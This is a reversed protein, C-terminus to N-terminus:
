RGSCTTAAGALPRRLRQGRLGRREADYGGARAKAVISCCRRRSSRASSRPAGLLPGGGAARDAALRAPRAHRGPQHPLGVGPGIAYAMALLSLGFAFAVGLTASRRVRRDGGDGRRRVGARVDRRGGSWSTADCGGRGLDLTAAGTKGAATPATLPARRDASVSAPTGTPSRRSRWCRPRSSGSSSARPSARAASRTAPSTSTGSRATSPRSRTPSSRSSRGTDTIRVAEGEVVIDLGKAWTNTGTTLAVKRAHELNRAKQEETGTVFHMAGDHYLGILPTVHPRGDARVTTLWYLEASALVAAAAEAWPTAEAAPDSFRSDFKTPRHGHGGLGVRGPAPASSMACCNELLRVRHSGARKATQHGHVLVSVGGARRRPARAQDLGVVVDLGHAADVQAHPGALHEPEESGVAGALRRGHLISVVSSVIVDPLAVTAPTSTAPSGSATRRASRRRAAPPRGPGAGSRARAAPGAPAATRSSARGLRRSRALSSSASTSSSSAASRRM